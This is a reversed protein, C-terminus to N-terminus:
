IPSRRERNISKRMSMTCGSLGFPFHRSLFPLIVILRKNNTNYIGKAVLLYLALSSGIIYRTHLMPTSVLSIIFPLVIPVFLWLLLLYLRNLNTIYSSGTCDGSIDLLDRFGKNRGIKSFNVFSFVALILFLFFLVYDRGSFHYFYRAIDVLTPQSLWGGGQMALTNKLWIALGPIFLLGIIFELKIWKGLSIKFVDRHTLYRTFCFINQAVIFFVGYFHSYMLLVSSIVYAITYAKKSGGITRIFFYFSLLTLFAVLSYARAEQSYEIHFVSIALILSSLTGVTRSFLMKGVTYIMLVSCSGLIASPLRLSFESDGFLSVWFHLLLYYLPPNNDNMDMMWRIQEMIYLKAVEASVAEDLWVSEAGLNYIRLLLGLLFILIILYNEEIYRLISHNGL